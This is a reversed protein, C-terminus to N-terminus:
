GWATGLLYIYTELIAVYHTKKAFWVDVVMSFKNPMIEVTRQEVFTTLEIMYKKLRSVSIHENKFHKGNSQYQVTSFPLLNLILVKM